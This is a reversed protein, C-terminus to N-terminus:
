SWSEEESVVNLSAKLKNESSLFTASFRPIHATLFERLNILTIKVSYPSILALLYVSKSFVHSFIYVLNCFICEISENPSYTQMYNTNTFDKFNIEKLSM